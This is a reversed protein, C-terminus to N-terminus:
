RRTSAARSLRRLRARAERHDKDLALVREWAAAAAASDKLDEHAQATASLLDVSEGSASLEKGYSELAAAPNGAGRWLDGLLRYGGAPMPQGSQTFPRLAELGDTWSKKEKLVLALNYSVLPDGPRSALVARYAAASKDLDELRYYLNGLRLRTEVDEPFRRLHREYNDAADSPLGKAEYMAGLYFFSREDLAGLHRAREMLQLAGMDWPTDLNADKNLYRDPGRQYLVVALDVMAGLNEPNARLATRAALEDADLAAGTKFQDPSRPFFVASPPAPRRLVAAIALAGVLALFAAM